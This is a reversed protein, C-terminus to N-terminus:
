VERVVCSHAREKCAEVLIQGGVLCVGVKPARVCCNAEVRCHFRKIFWGYGTPNWTAAAIIQQTASLFGVYEDFFAGVADVAHAKGYMAKLTDEVLVKVAVSPRHLSHGEDDERCKGRRFKCGVAVGALFFACADVEASCAGGMTETGEAARAAAFRVVAGPRALVGVPAQVLLAALAGHHADILSSFNFLDM